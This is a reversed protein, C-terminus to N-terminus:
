LWRDLYCIDATREARSFTQRAWKSDLMENAAKKFELAEIYAKTKKFKHLGAGGLQYAMMTLVCQRISSRTKFNDVFTQAENIAKNVASILHLEAIIRTAEPTEPTVPRFGRGTFLYTTGYGITWRDMPCRYPRARFGEDRKIRDLM